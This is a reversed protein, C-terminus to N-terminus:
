ATRPLGLRKHFDEDMPPLGYRLKFTPEWGLVEKPKTILPKIQRPDDHTNEVHIIKVKPNILEKVNEAVELMTFEDYHQGPNGLNIPGTNNVETLRIHGDVRISLMTEQVPLYCQKKFPDEWLVFHKGGELDGQEILNGNSLLVPTCHSILRLVVLINRWLIHVIWEAIYIRAVDEDLCGAM